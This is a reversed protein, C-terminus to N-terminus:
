YLQARAPVATRRLRHTRAAHMLRGGLYCRVAPDHQRGTWFVPSTPDDLRAAKDWHVGTKTERTHTRELPEGRAARRPLTLKAERDGRSATNGAAARPPSRGRRPGAGDLPLEVPLNALWQAQLADARKRARDRGPPEM